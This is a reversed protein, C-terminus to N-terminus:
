TAPAHTSLRATSRNELLDAVQEVILSALEAKDMEPAEVPEADHRLFFARSRDRGMTATADNAVLLDVGKSRLKGRAYDLLNTTEAAFGVKILGERRISKLIDVTRTLRLTLDDDTKKVKEESVEAPTYDAVAAAMVLADASEVAARVAEYMDAASEVRVLEVGHPTPISTPGSVLTVEAGTDLAAQAIAYGMKGSSRNGLYRIPDIPERTPGSSVVVRKGALRGARGLIRRVEGLIASTPVLRGYGTLGSALAGRDPGIICAGRRELTALNDQTAANLYMHHDMAPAILLPGPCALASVTLMDDALGHALKAIVNATAPAVVMIDAKEALTVHGAEDETWQEMADIRVPRRTLTEFTLPTVFQLASRTMLVDVRAGAVALDRALEVVKYAAIGGSVGLLIRKGSFISPM